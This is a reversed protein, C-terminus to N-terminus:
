PPGRAAGPAPVAAPPPATGQPAPAFRDVTGAEVPRPDDVGYHGVPAVLALRGHRGVAVVAGPFAGSDVEERLYAVVAALRTSDFGLTAPAAAPIGASAPVAPAPATAHCAAALAALASGRWLQRSVAPYGDGQRGLRRWLRTPHPDPPPRHHARPRAARARRRAREGARREVRHSVVEGGPDPQPSLPQRAVGAGDPPGRRDRHHAPGPFRPARHHRAGLAAACERRVGHRAVARDGRAGFRLSRFLTTSPFLPSRPPRRIM